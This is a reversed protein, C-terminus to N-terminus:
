RWGAFPLVAALPALAAADGRARARFADEVICAQQEIGYRHFAKGPTLEYRYRAFPPRRLALHGGTQVQWVHVLEHVFHAQLGTPAAGFDDSWNFGNPHCWVHGDPAMTVWWPHLAWYKARRVTVAAVDLADGFVSHALAIEGQTLPRITAPDPNPM